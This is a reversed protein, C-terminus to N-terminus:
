FWAEAELALVLHRYRSRGESRLVEYEDLSDVVTSGFAQHVSSLQYGVLLRLSPRAFIGIGTPNLVPGVKIQWTDRTDTDGFELGRTDAAGDRSRFVSDYAQRFLNGNLSRERALSTEFLLHLAPLLYLQARVVSSAYWRNRESASVTDDLDWERGYLAAWVLDLRDPVVRLQAEDGVVLEYRQDTLGSVWITYSRGGETETVSVDPHRRLLHAFLNNWVLPGLGGFGLYAVAKYSTAYTSQPPNERYFLDEGGPHAQLWNHVVEGRLLDEYRVGPTTHPANPNGPVEPEYFFQGGGGLELHHGLRLRLLGGATLVPSYASGRISFGADGAGLLLDFADRRLTASLGVTDYFIQAPKIDYLGLDGMWTDLTGLQWVVGRGLVNRALVYLQSMRFRDLRGGSAEATMVSDGEMKYHLSVEPQNSADAQLLDVRLELSAWPGENLLRGYLNWFGLKGDGGQVDPRTMIRFYGAVEARPRQVGASATVPLAAVVCLWLLTLLARARM